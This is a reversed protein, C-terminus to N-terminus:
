LIMVLNVILMQIKQDHKWKFSLLHWNPIFWNSNLAPNGFPISVMRHIFFFWYSWIVSIIHFVWTTTWLSRQYFKSMKQGSKSIKWKLFDLFTLLNYYCGWAWGFIINHVTVNLASLYVFFFILAKYFPSKSPISQYIMHSALYNFLNEFFIM